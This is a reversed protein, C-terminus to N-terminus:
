FTTDAGLIETFREEVADFWSDDNRKREFSIVWPIDMHEYDDDRRHTRRRGPRTNHASGDIEVICKLKKPNEKDMIMIDPHHIQWVEGAKSARNPDPGWSDSCYMTGSDVNYEIYGNRIIRDQSIGLKVLLNVTRVLDEEDPSGEIQLPRM